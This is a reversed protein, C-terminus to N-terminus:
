SRSAVALGSYRLVQKKTSDSGSPEEKLAVVNGFVVVGGRSELLASLGRIRFDSVFM